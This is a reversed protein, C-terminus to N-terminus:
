EEALVWSEIEFVHPDSFGRERLARALELVYDRNAGSPGACRNIQAAMAQMPAPGLFAHNDETAKYMVGAVRSDAFEIDVGFRLYGNKERHDLYRFTEPEVLLALGECQEGPAEILTVVRGPDGAVGRHDHSGQWFRRAWGAIRGPRTELVPFDQKWILSGYGFLWTAQM